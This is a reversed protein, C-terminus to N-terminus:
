ENVVKKPRGPSKAKKKKGGALEREKLKTLLKRVKREGFETVLDRMDLDAQPIPAQEVFHVKDDIGTFAPVKRLKEAIQEDETEFRFNEFKALKAPIHLSQQRNTVPDTAIVIASPELVVELNRCKMAIFTYKM